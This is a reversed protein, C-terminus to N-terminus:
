FSIDGKCNLIHFVLEQLLDHENQRSGIGKSRADFRRLEQIIEISHYANYNKMALLYRDLQRPYKIGLTEMLSHQSKDRTFQVALLNSFFSFLATSTLVAPNSKPNARFYNIITYTKKVDRAAIADVLEFNNFERSIGVHLEIAQPTIMAGKGLIMALKKVENYVKSLDLGIHDALVAATQPEINLGLEKVMATVAAPLANEYIRKSEFVVAKSARAAALLKAGKAKQGRFCIVLVTSPNPNAVYPGIADLVNARASQAEKLIVVLRDAMMPYRRCTQTVTEADCEPGYLQFLNFDREEKPVLNEFEEVLRDTYFSEEGHIIYVPAMKRSKIDSHIQAFSPSSTAAM